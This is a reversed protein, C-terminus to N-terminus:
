LVGGTGNIVRHPGVPTGEPGGHTRRKSSSRAVFWLGLVYSSLLGLGVTYALILYQQGNV